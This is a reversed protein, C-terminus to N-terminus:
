SQPAVLRFKTLLVGAELVAWLSITVLSQITWAPPSALMAVAVLALVAYIRWRRLPTVRALVVLGILAIVLGGIASPTVLGVPSANLISVALVVWGLAIFVTALAIFGWGHWSGITEAQAARAASVEAIDLDEPKVGFAQALAGRTGLSTVGSSEIRQITRANVGVIEALREQSYSHKIRLEKVLRGDIMVVM